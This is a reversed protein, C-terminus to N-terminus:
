KRSLLSLEFDRVRQRCHEVTQRTLL